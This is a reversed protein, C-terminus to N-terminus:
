SDVSDFAASLDLLVLISPKNKDLNTRIDSAINKVLATKLDISVGLQLWYNATALIDELELNIFTKFLSSPLPDLVCTSAKLKTVVRRLTNADVLDFHGLEVDSKVCTLPLLLLASHQKQQNQQCIGSRIPLIKDRFYGAFEECKSGPHKKSYNTM